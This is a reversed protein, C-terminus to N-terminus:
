IGATRWGDGNHHLASGLDSGLFLEMESFVDAVSELPHSGGLYTQLLVEFM